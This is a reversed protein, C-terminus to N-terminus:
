DKLFQTLYWAANIISAEQTSRQKNLAGAFNSEPYSSSHTLLTVRSRQAAKEGELERGIILQPEFFLSLIPFIPFLSCSFFSLSSLSFTPCFTSYFMVKLFVSPPNSSSKIIKYCKSFVCWHLLFWFWAHLCYEGFVTGFLVVSKTQITKWRIWFINHSINLNISGLRTSLYKFINWCHM